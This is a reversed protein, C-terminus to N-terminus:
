ILFCIEIKDVAFLTQVEAKLDVKWNETRKVVGFPNGNTGFLIFKKADSKFYVLPTGDDFRRICGEASELNSLRTEEHKVRHATYFELVEKKVNVLETGEKRFASYIFMLPLGRAEQEANFLVLDKVFEAFAEKSEFVENRFETGQKVVVQYTTTVASAVVSAVNVNSM